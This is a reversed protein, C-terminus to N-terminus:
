KRIAITVQKGNVEAKEEKDWEGSGGEQLEVTLTEKKIFDLFANIASRIEEDGDIMTYIRDSVDYNASKRLDQIFRILERAIGEQKLEPTIHTELSVLIGNDSEVDHGERGQYGITAEEPSLKYTKQVAPLEITGDKHLVFDGEKAFKIIEQTEKGFRPGIKRADITVMPLAMKEGAEFELQKVNLEELIVDEYAEVMKESINKPLAIILKQLPQRVKLKHKARLSLALSIITRVVRIEENLKTDIRNTDMKPWDALHVSRKGTLNKYIKDAIMPSFPALLLSFRTLVYHLTYYAGAKDQDNESKWFRRRSRRVYWNSLLDIFEIMPRTARTFNYADMQHTVEAILANTESVMWQDLPNTLTPAEDPPTWGDIRAYTVFFSYTNWLTLTFKKVLEEVHQESFRVDEGIPATSTYLFFRTTDVGHTDFLHTPDPYNKKRKSLKEGNAALLIGNVIINKFAPEDFLITAIVHLTYFWGRTQDLGEAIFNAPFNEEFEQKNEFPYHLQAYPMSGSEFWCDLVEPIRRMAGGCKPCDLEIEDIYPKHLDLKDERLPLKGARYEYIGAHGPLFEFTEEISLRDFYRAIARIVDGHTVVAIKKGDHKRNLYNIIEIARKEVEEFSEGGEFKKYYREQVDAYSRIYNQHDMGEMAPGVAHERLRSEIVYEIGLEKSIIEATEIARPFNSTILLDVGSKKLKEAAKQAQKKGAETLHYEKAPDSNVIARKNQEAEGHRIAYFTNGGRSHERLEKLSGICMQEGCSKSSDKAENKCEWIPIPAGWFRNRSINWDRAGELWKGFRGEQIHEPVWRIKKNNKLLKDKIDTVKIFWAQTAYNLLPTDCRWCHPYSHQYKEKKFLGNHKELWAIIKQDTKTVDDKDKAVEGRFDKVEDIFQGNMKVHMIPAVNERQGLLMDDEGYGPAIHVIGTGDETTVFDALVVRFANQWDAFYPFLPEYAEGELEKASVTEAITHEQDKFVAEVRDKAVIYVEGNSVVKVYEIKPGLALLTNGPLTWPTTTWALVYTDKHNKLKFKATASLDKIDKYGQTVEFNSLPTECRPCIHMSKYNQYVMKKDWIQKFVWWISEMYNNDLTAYGHEFDVWRAMRKMLQEWEETYRFVSERCANNFKAVGMEEIDKRGSLKLEKEIEYEVPLGHCDWGNVRPVHWGKMTWYRTVADKLAGALIHGYHPLGNAFPPGDYFVYKKQNQRQAVSEEFIKEREWFELMEHEIEPLPKKADAPEFM